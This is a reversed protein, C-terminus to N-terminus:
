KQEAGPDYVAQIKRMDSNDAQNLPSYDGLKGGQYVSNIDKTRADSFSYHEAHGDAFSLVPGGSHWTAPPTIWSIATAQGLKNASSIKFPGKNYLRKDPVDIFVMTQNAALIESMRRIPNIPDYERHPGLYNTMNYSWKHDPRQDAPCKYIKISNTYEGMSGRKIAEDRWDVSDPLSDEDNRIDAHVWDTKEETQPTPLFLKNGTAYSRWAKAVQSQQTLCKTKIATARGSLLSPTALGLLLGIIGVVVLLEILTFGRNNNM